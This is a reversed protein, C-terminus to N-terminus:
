QAGGLGPLGGGEGGGQGGGGQGGGGGGGGQQKTERGLSEGNIPLPVKDGRRYREMLFTNYYPDAPELKRGAILDGPNAVMLGLNTATACGFNGSTHNYYDHGPNKSWDSCGPLTVTYRRVVVQVQNSSVPAIGFESQVPHVPVRKYDLYAKVLKIRRSRREDAAKDGASAPKEIGNVVHVIDGPLVDLKALFRDIRDQESLDLRDSAPAFDVVHRHQVINVQPQRTQPVKSHDEIPFGDCAVLLM